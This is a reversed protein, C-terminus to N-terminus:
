LSGEIIIELDVDLLLIESDSMIPRLTKVIFALLKELPLKKLISARVFVDEIIDDDPVNLRVFRDTCLLALCRQLAEAGIPSKRGVVVGDKIPPIGFEKVRLRLAHERVQSAINVPRNNEM